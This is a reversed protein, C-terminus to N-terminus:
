MMECGVGRDLGRDMEFKPDWVFRAERDDESAGGALRHTAGGALLETRYDRIMNAAGALDPIGNIRERWKKAAPWGKIYWLLHKRMCVAAGAATGYEDEQWQLHQLVTDAWEDVTVAASESRMERFVWPNGLAGRSVMLGDPMAGRQMLTADALSM